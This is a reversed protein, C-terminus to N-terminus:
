GAGLHVQIAPPRVGLRVLLQGALRDATLCTGGYSGEVATRVIQSIARRSVLSQSPEHENPSPLTAELPPQAAGPVPVAAAASRHAITVDARAPTPENKM